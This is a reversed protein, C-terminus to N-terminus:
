GSRKQLKRYIRNKANRKKSDQLVFDTFPTKGDWTKSYDIPEQAARLVEQEFKPTFGNETVEPYIKVRAAERFFESLSAYGRKGLFAKIDKYLNSPLSINITTM